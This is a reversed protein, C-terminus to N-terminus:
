GNPQKLGNSILIQRWQEPTNKDLKQNWRKLARVDKLGNGTLMILVKSEDSFKEKFKLYGAFSAAAAPEVLLGRQQALKKQAELIEQDSVVLAEGGSETVAHAALYLNRPAGASISDAITAPTQYEFHGTKLYRILADSGESQVAILKPLKEIWGLQQLEWLGKYIGSIVVGDGVPVFIVDPLDGNLSIFLDYAPSKKGEITLPNYATNRNYWNKAKSIEICLDFAQDYNGDVLYISAGFSQIQILKEEPISAPVFIHAKLGLRACIGALSSAANGTSAVSIEAIGMQLAKLAILSSARDKFSLTPNRTDDFFYINRNEFEYELVPHDTLRLRNLQAPEIKEFSIQGDQSRYNLPLLPPYLWFQGAPLNMFDKKNIQKKLNSYDYEILLVGQLPQNPEVKGCRPCLYRFVPEIEEVSFEAKCDFCKYHYNNM